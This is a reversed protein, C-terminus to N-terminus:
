GIACGSRRRGTSAASRTSSIPRGPVPRLATLESRALQVGSNIAAPQGGRDRRVHTRLRPDSIAEIAALTAPDPGDLVVIVEIDRISQRLASFIADRVQRPRNFTTVIVSVRPSDSM